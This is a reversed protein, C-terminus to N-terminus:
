AKEVPFQVETVCEALDDAVYDDYGYAAPDEYDNDPCRLYVERNPGVIRYRNAEIWTLLANYAQGLTEYDGQHIVCAMTEMGPLERVTVRETGPLPTGVPTATEVDVDRERYEPDYYIALSPGAARAGHQALYVSLEKWLPGQDGYTPIIDRIAVVTQPDIKKLVIDYTPMTGEQEIQKLRWEVRALRAQEEQVQQQLEAQKLRLMGRIQAPPLDGDLLRAIQALSLGLDKLALIRNLRPLQDASYYRYGTFRDVKAPRLLGIEDYYRLTKVPVQSLKSFEGIKFM